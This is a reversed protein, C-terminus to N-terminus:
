ARNRRVRIEEYAAELLQINTKWFHRDQVLRRGQKGIFRRLGADRLLTLVKQAFDLPDDAVLLDRGAVAELSEIGLRTSVVPRGAAMAALIKTKQGAGYRVPAVCVSTRQLFANLDDVYGTVEINTRRALLRVAAPPSGGVLSLRAAPLEARILPFIENCLFLAADVNPPYRFSGLFLLNPEDSDGPEVEFLSDDVGFPIVSADVTPNYATLLNHEHRCCVIVKDFRACAAPEFYVMNLWDKLRYVKTAFSDAAQYDRYLRLMNLEVEHLVMAAKRPTAIADLYPAMYIGQIQIVDFTERQTMGILKQKMEISQCVTVFSPKTTLLTTLRVKWHREPPEPFLVTEVDRCYRKLAPARAIEDRSWCFTLLSIEHRSHLHKIIELLNQSAGNHETACPPEASVFLLRLDPAARPIPVGARM